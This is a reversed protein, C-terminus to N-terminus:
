TTLRSLKPLTVAATAPAARSVTATLTDLPTAAMDDTQGSWSPGSRTSIETAKTIRSAQALRRPMRSAPRIKAM